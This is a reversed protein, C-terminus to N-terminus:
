ESMKEIKKMTVVQLKCSDLTAERIDNQLFTSILTNEYINLFVSLMGHIFLISLISIAAIILVQVSGFVKYFSSGVIFVALLEIVMFVVNIIMDVSTNERAIEQYEGYM